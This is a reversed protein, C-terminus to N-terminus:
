FLHPNNRIYIAALENKTSVQFIEKLKEINYRIGEYSYRTQDAIERISAGMALMAMINQQVDSIKPMPKRGIVFVYDDLNLCRPSNMGSPLDYYGNEIEHVLEEPQKDSKKITVTDSDVLIFVHTM